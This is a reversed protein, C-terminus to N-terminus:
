SKLFDLVLRNFEEPHDLNPLHAADHIVAKRAGPVLTMLIETAELVPPIDADGVVLLTPAKIEGLREFAPPNLDDTPASEFDIGLTKGNMDLFLDRLRQDIRELSRTPGALFLQMEAHNLGIPDRAEDAARVEAFVEPYKKGLDAGSISPGVLVIKSVREPHDLAFDMALSSGYSCGVLHAPKLELADMIALLDAVESWRMAPLESRGFGRQDPAIVDFDKSFAEVQARWMRSDAIGAHLLFLPMGSGAREYHLRAGNITIEM